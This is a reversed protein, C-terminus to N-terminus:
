RPNDENNMLEEEYMAMVDYPKDAYIVSRSMSYIVNPYQATPKIRGAQHGVGPALIPIDSNRAIEKIRDVRNAGVIVGAPNMKRKKEIMRWIKRWLNGNELDFAMSQRHTPYCWMFLELPEYIHVFGDFGENGMYPNLTLGQAGLYNYVYEYYRQNTHPVDGFKADYLIKSNPAFDKIYYITSELYDQLLGLRDM